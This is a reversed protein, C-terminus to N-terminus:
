GREEREPHILLVPVHVSQMVKQAVSGLLFQSLGTRGHTSMVVLDIGEDRVFDCITPAIGGGEILQATVTIQENRLENRLGILYQSMQERIQNVQAEQGALAIQDAYEYAPSRFVHLLVLEAHNSRALAVAHPLARSSWGSGDLPVLIKKYHPQPEMM